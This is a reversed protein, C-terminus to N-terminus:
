FAFFFHRRPLLRAQQRCKGGAQYNCTRESIFSSEKERDRERHREENNKLEKPKTDKSKARGMVLLPPSPPADIILPAVQSLHGQPRQKPPAIEKNPNGQALM